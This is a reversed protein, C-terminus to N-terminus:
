HFIFICQFHHATYQAVTEVYAFTHHAMLEWKVIIQFQVCIGLVPLPENCIGKHFIDNTFYESQAQHIVNQNVDYVFDVSSFDM